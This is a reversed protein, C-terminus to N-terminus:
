GGFNGAGLVQVADAVKVRLSSVDGNFKERETRIDDMGTEPTCNERIEDIRNDMEEVLIHIDHINPLIKEKEGGGLKEMNRVIDYIVAKWATLEMEMTKCCNRAKM